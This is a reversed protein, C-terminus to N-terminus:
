NSCKKNKIRRIICRVGNYDLLCNVIIHNVENIMDIMDNYYDKMVFHYTNMIIPQIM